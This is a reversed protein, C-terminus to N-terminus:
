GEVRPRDGAERAPHDATRRTRTPGSAAATSGNPICRSSAADYVHASANCSAGPTAAVRKAQCQRQRTERFVM